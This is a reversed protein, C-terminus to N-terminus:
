NLRSCWFLYEFFSYITIWGCLVGRYVTCSTTLVSYLQYTYASYLLQCVTIENARCVKWNLLRGIVNVSNGTTRPGPCRPLTPQHRLWSALWRCWKLRCHLWAEEAHKTSWGRTKKRRMRTMLLTTRLVFGGRSQQVITVWCHTLMYLKTDWEVCLLTM